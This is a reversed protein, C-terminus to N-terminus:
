TPAPTPEAAAADFHRRRRRTRHNQTHMLIQQVGPSRSAAPPSSVLRKCPSDSLRVAGRPKRLKPLAAVRAILAEVNATGIKRTLEMRPPTSAQKIRAYWHALDCQHVDAYVSKVPM